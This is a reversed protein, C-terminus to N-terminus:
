VRERCSARGIEFKIDKFQEVVSDPVNQYDAHPIDEVYPATIEYHGDTKPLRRNNM